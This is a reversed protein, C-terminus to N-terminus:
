KGVRLSNVPCFKAAALKGSKIAISSKQLPPNQGPLLKFIPDLYMSNGGKTQPPARCEM